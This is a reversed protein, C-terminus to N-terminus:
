NLCIFQLIPHKNCLLKVFKTWSKYHQKNKIFFTVFQFESPCSFNGSAQTCICNRVLCSVDEVSKNKQELCWSYFNFTECELEYLVAYMHAREEAIFDEFITYIDGKQTNQKIMTNMFPLILKFKSLTLM